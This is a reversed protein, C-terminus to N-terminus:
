SSLLQGYIAQVGDVSQQIGFREYVRAQGAQGMAAAQEPQTLIETIARALAPADGPPVLLGQVQDEVIERIGGADTAVIPKGAAMAEILVRGFPEPSTSALVVVDLAAMVVPLDHRFPSFFVRESLGLEDRLNFLSDRYDLAYPVPDGVIIGRARPIADGVLSMARLFVEQGKWRELRGVIGIALDGDVLGFSKRGKATDLAAVFAHVDLGNYVVHGKERLVGAQLHGKQVFESIYIFSSAMGALRKDFWNLEEWDRIHCVCPVAALRAAVIGERDHGVRINTHVLDVSEERIITQLARARPWVRSRLLLAFGLAHYLTSGWATKRLWRALSSQRTEKVWAPRHDRVAYADWVFVKLGLGQFHDVYAHPAYSVVIPEYRDRDLRKLLEYLSVVSGGATPASDVYLVRHKAAM